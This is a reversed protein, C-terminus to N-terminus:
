SKDTLRPFLMINEDSIKFGEKFIDEAPVFENCLLFSKINLLTNIKDSTKPM